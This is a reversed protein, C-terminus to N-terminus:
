YNGDCCPQLPAPRPSPNPNIGWPDPTINFGIFLAQMPNQIAASFPNGVPYFLDFWGDGANIFGYTSDEIILTPPDGDLIYCYTTQGTVPNFSFLLTAGGDPVSINFFTGDPMTVYLNYNDCTVTAGQARLDYIAQNIQAAAARTWINSGQAVCQTTTQAHTWQACSLMFVVVAVAVAGTRGSFYNKM